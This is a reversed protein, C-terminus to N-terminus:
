ATVVARTGDSFELEISTADTGLLAAPEPRLTTWNHGPVRWAALKIGPGSGVFWGQAGRLRSAFLPRADKTQVKDSVIVPDGWPQRNDGRGEQLVLTHAPERPLWLQEAFM